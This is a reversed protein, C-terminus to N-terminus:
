WNLNGGVNYLPRIKGFVQWCQKEKMVAKRFPTISFTLITKIQMEKIVLSILCEKIYKNSMQVQEESIERNL